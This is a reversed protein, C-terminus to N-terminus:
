KKNEMLRVVECLDNYVNILKNHIRASVDDGLEETCIDCKVLLNKSFDEYLDQKLKQVDGLLEKNKL